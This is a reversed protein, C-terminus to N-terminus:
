FTMSPHQNGLIKMMVHCPASELWVRCVWCDSSSRAIQPHLLPIVEALQLLLSEKFLITGHGNAEFYIGIDFSEALHHLHKVGTKALLVTMGLKERMYHTSSGNAYATQVIGVQLSAMRETAICIYLLYM